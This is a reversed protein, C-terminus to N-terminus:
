MLIHDIRDSSLRRVPVPTMEVSHEGLWSDTISDLVLDFVIRIVNGQGVLIVLSNFSM